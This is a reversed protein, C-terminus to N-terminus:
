PSSTDFQTILGSSPSRLKKQVRLIIEPHMLLNVSRWCGAIRGFGCVLVCALMKAACMMAMGM